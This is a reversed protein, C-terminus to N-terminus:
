QNLAQNRKRKLSAKRRCDAGDKPILRNIKVNWRIEEKSENKQKTTTVHNFLNKIIHKKIFKREELVPSLNVTLSSKIDVSIRQTM